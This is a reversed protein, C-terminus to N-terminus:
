KKFRRFRGPETFLDNDNEHKLFSKVLEDQTELHPDILKTNLTEVKLEGDTLKYSVVHFLEKEDEGITGDVTGIAKLQICAINGLKIPYGRFYIGDAGIPYHILYETDSFKLVIMREDQKADEGTDPILEWLGLVAPDIRINHETVLPAKYVCGGLLLALLAPLITHRKSNTKM